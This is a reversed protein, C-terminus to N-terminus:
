LLQRFEPWAFSQTAEREAESPFTVAATLVDRISLRECLMGAPIIGGRTIIVMADFEGRFQPILHEVLRDVEDWSLLEKRTAM